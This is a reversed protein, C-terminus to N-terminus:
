SAGRAAHLCTAPSGDEDTFALDYEEASVRRCHAGHYHFQLARRRQPTGNPPTQHPLLGNFIMGGGAPLEIPVATETPLRGAAIQCDGRDDAVVDGDDGPVLVPGLVHQRPGRLHAGPFVHMCGNSITADDLAIWIGAIDEKPLVNFYADDQHWPKECGIHAPKILATDQFLVPNIGLIAEALGYVAPHNKSWDGFLGGRESFFMLKRVKLEVAELSDDPSCEFGSEFRVSFHKGSGTKVETETMSTRVLSTIEGRAQKIEDASLMHTFALYGDNRYSGIQDGTLSGNFEHLNVDAM